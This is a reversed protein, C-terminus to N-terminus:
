FQSRLPERRAGARAAHARARLFYWVDGPDFDNTESTGDPGIVTTRVRGKVVFAWEAAIAHWPAARPHRGPEVADLRWGPGEFGAAGQGDGAPGVRRRDRTGQETGHRVSPRYSRRKKGAAETDRNTKRPRAADGGAPRVPPLTATGWFCEVSLESMSAGKNTFPLGTISRSRRVPFLIPDTRKLGTSRKRAMKTNYDGGTENPIASQLITVIM